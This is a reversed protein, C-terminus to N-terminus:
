SFLITSVQEPPASDPSALAHAGFLQVLEIWTVKPVVVAVTATGPPVMADPPTSDTAQLVTDADYLSFKSSVQLKPTSVAAVVVHIGPQRALTFTVRVM